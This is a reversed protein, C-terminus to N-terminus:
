QRGELLDWFASPSLIRLSDIEGIELLQNDLTLLYNSESMASQLVLIDNTHVMLNRLERMKELYADKKTKDIQVVKVFDRLKELDIKHDIRNMVLIIEQYVIPNIMFQVKELVRKSFLKATDREDRFYSIIVSSDLFVKMKEM